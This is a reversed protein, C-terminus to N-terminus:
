RWWGKRGCNEGSYYVWGMATLQEPMNFKGLHWPFPEIPVIAWNDLWSWHWGGRLMWDELYDLLVKSRGYEDHTASEFLGVTGHM